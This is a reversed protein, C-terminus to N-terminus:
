KEPKVADAVKNVGARLSLGFLGGLIPWVAEPVTFVDFGQLFGLVVVAGGIIYTKKGKLFELYKM